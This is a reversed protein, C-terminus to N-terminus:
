LRGDQRLSSSAFRLEAVLVATAAAWVSDPQAGKSVSPIVRGTSALFRGSDLWLLARVVEAGQRPRM